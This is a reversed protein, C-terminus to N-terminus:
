RERETPSWPQGRQADHDSQLRVQAGLGTADLWTECARPDDDRLATREVVRGVEDPPADHQLDCWALLREGEWAHHDLALWQRAEFVERGPPAQGRYRLVGILLGDPQEALAVAAGFTGDGLSLALGDGPQWPPRVREPPSEIARVSALAALGLQELLETASGTARAIADAGADAIAVFVEIGEPGGGFDVVEGLARAEIAELLAWRREFLAAAAARDAGPWRIAIHLEM